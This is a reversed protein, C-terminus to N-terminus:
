AGRDVEVVYRRLRVDGVEGGAASWVLDSLVEVAEVDAGGIEEAHGVDDRPVGGEPFPDVRM